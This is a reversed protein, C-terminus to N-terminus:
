TGKWRLSRVGAKNTKWTFQGLGQFVAFTHNGMALRTSAKVGEIVREAEEKMKMAEVMREVMYRHAHPLDAYTGDDQPYMGTIIKRERDTGKPTPFKGSEVRKWFRELRPFAKDIFQMAADDLEVKAYVLENGGILCAIHWTTLGTVFMSAICQVRYILPIGDYWETRRYANSVKGEYGHRAREGVYGDPSCSLWPYDEHRILANDYRTVPKSIRRSFEEAVIPELHNGWQVFEPVDTEIETKGTKDAWVEFASRFAGDVNLISGWESAGICSRRAKLWDERNDFQEIRDRWDGM